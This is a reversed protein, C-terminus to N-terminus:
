MSYGAFLYQLQNRLNEINYFFFFFYNCIRFRDHIPITVSEELTFFFFFFLSLFFNRPFSRSAANFAVIEDVVLAVRGPCM